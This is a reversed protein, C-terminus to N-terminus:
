SPGSVASSSPSRAYPRCSRGTTSADSHRSCARWTASRPSQRASDAGSRTAARRIDDYGRTGEPEPVIKLEGALCMTHILAESTEDLSVPEGDVGVAELDALAEGLRRLNEPRLSPVIDLEDPLEEAGRIVRAFSGNM